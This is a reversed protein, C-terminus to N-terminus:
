AEQVQVSIRRSRNEIVHKNASSPMVLPRSQPKVKTAQAATAKGRRSIRGGRAGNIRARERGTLGDAGVETSAFGGTRGKKGGKAGLVKYFDEGYKKKNTAAAAQGGAKTGAM